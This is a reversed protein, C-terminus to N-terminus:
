AAGPEAVSVPIEVLLSKVLACFGVLQIVFGTAHGYEWRDRLRMWLSPVSQPASRLADGIQSNVPAVLLVWSLFALGLLVAAFVTWQFAPVHRRVLVALVGAAVISTVQYTGGVIAFYRYLTTNVATYLTPSYQMKQPLELLHASTMTLALAALVLAVFRWSNLFM